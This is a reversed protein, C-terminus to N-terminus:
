NNLHLITPASTLAFIENAYKMYVGLDHTNM